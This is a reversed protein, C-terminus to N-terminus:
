ATSSTIQRAGWPRGGYLATRDLQEDPIARVIGEAEAGNARLLDL